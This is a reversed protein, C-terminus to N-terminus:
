KIVAIKFNIGDGVEMAEGPMNAAYTVSRVLTSKMILNKNKEVMKQGLEDTELTLDATDKITLGSQKRAEQIARILERVQGEEKLEETVTTDLAIEDPISSGFEVHKINVEDKILDILETKKSAGSDKSKVRLKSLPQRVKIGAKARLELAKSVITRVEVMDKLENEHEYDSLFDPWSELHVSRPDQSNVEGVLVSRYIHEALFPMIPAIIKSFELLVFRLTGLTYHRDTDDDGKVRERSRRIYWVSLDEVFDGIPRLARDIEYREMAAKVERETQGLRAKVWIDLARPSEGGHPFHTIADKYLLFFSLVNELRMVVKKYVSDLDRESFSLDESKMVPSSLLYYRLADAGYKDFIIQPDPFNGKSKSMKEGDEALITGTTVVNEFPAKGFLITGLVHMYYFWTRTQAIYEAVFQAPFHRGLWEKNEFPYHEAAYPMSGSEFWCDIVEPIRKMVGGCTCSLTVSDAYPMHLDAEFLENRPKYVWPIEKFDANAMFLPGEGRLRVAESSSLGLSDSILMWIVVDHAVVLIKKGQHKADIEAMFRGVRRRVDNYSEVGDENSTFRKEEWDRSIKQRYSDVSKGEWSGHGVERLRDDSIFNDDSINLAEKIIKATETTRVLPSYYILDFKMGALKKATKQVEAKGKETLHHPTETLSSAIWKVNNEAEGHRVGCFENRGAQELEKVSGVVHVKKCQECRWIPLPSAWFRNRSINWDPAGEIGKKFRGEKLHEPIWNINENNHLLKEKVDAIKVFWAPLAYYYLPTECRYCHPYSHVIKEKAFLFNRAALYRIVEIDAAQHNINKEPNDKPKVPMGKFDTVDATFKGETTVHHIFPITERRALAMDDEGYGPAIHVIGTGDTMTVFDAGYVKWAREKNAFDKDYFYKFVPEYEAGVLDKGKLEAVVNFEGKTSSLRDKALILSEKKGEANSIEAVVYDAEPNVALAFNGPLTWPTTTWALLYKNKEKKIPFKVYVSIDTIDKYSGDMAIESNAIPTECRSCYPLVKTGEYILGKSHLQKVGWWVSEIYSNDMTKYSGDFDVFRGMRDVTKKWEHVYALVKSRAYENFKAVGYETIERKGSIGLDKEVINEIPLGHCDWGWRRPVRYGRMTKYRPVVDKIASALIHGYHPTGTAFPPGDYFTFDKRAKGGFIKQFFGIKEELTKEYIKNEAWFKQTQEERLAVKSKEKAEKQIKQNDM